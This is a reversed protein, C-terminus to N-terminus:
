VEPQTVELFFIFIVNLVPIIVYTGFTILVNIDMGGIKGGLMSVLSLATVFFLPAAILVGTYIDSYTSISEVYKQRELRYALLAEKSKQSLYDKLSGGTEITSILGDFFEKLQDSPTSAAVARIATLVDYGFVEIYNTVKAIEISVEGYEKSASILKFMTVPAVGSAIVSSMHDIAFPLNTNISRRRSKIRAFPYYYMGFFVTISTILTMGLTKFIIGIVSAGKLSFYVTFIPISFVLAILTFLMMINIYTNSLIKVNSFRLSQYLKKFFDPFKEIFYISIRRVTINAFYGLSSPKYIAPKKMSILSKIEKVQKQLLFPDLVETKSPQWKEGGVMDEEYLFISPALKTERGIYDLQKDKSFLYRIFDLSLINQMTVHEKSEIKELIPKEKSQFAYILNKPFRLKHPRPIPVDELPLPGPLPVIKEAIKQPEKDRSDLDERLTPELDLTDSVRNLKPKVAASMSKIKDEDFPIPMDQQIGSPVPVSMNRDPMWDLPSVDKMEIDKALRGRLEKEIANHSPIEMVRSMKQRRLRVDGEGMKLDKLLPLNKTTIVSKQVKKPFTKIDEHTNDNYILSLLQANLHDANRLLVDIYSDYDELCENKSQQALLKSRISIYTKYNFDGRQYQKDLTKLDNILQTKYNYYVQVEDLINSISSCYSKIKDM